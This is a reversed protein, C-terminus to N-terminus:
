EQTVSRGGRALISGLVCSPPIGDEVADTTGGSEVAVGGTGNGALPSEEAQEAAGLERQDLGVLQGVARLAAAGLEAAVRDELGPLVMALRRAFEAQGVDRRRRAPEPLRALLLRPRAVAEGQAAVPALNERERDFAAPGPDAAALRGVDAEVVGADGAAVGQDDGLGAPLQAHEVIAAEVADEEVAFRHLPRGQSVAVLQGDAAEM